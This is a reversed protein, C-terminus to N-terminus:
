YYNQGERVAESIHGSIAQLKKISFQLWVAASASM